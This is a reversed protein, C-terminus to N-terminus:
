QIKSEPSGQETETRQSNDNLVTSRAAIMIFTQAAEKPIHYALGNDVAVKITIEDGRVEQAVPQVKVLVFYERNEDNAFEEGILELGRAKNVNILM